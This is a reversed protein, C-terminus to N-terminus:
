LSETLQVIALWCADMDKDSPIQNRLNVNMRSKRIIIIQMECQAIEKLSLTYIHHSNYTSFFHLACRKCERNFLFYYKAYQRSKSRLILWKKLCDLCIRFCSLKHIIFLFVPKGNCTAAARPIQTVVSRKETHTSRIYAFWNVRMLAYDFTFWEELM